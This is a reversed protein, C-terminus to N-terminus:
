LLTVHRYECESSCESAGHSAHADVALLSRRVNGVPLQAIASTHGTSECACFTYKCSSKFSGGKLRNCLALFWKKEFSQWQACLVVDKGKGALDQLLRM